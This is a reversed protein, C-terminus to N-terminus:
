NLAKTAEGLQKKGTAKLRGMFPDPKTKGYAAGYWWDVFDEQPFGHTQYWHSVIEPNPRLDPYKGVIWPKDFRKKCRGYGCSFDKSMTIQVTLNM